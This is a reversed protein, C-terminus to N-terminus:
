HQNILKGSQITKGNAIVKYFYIGSSLNATELTTLQKTVTTRAVMEGLINYVVLDYSNGQMADNLMVNISTTFPNPYISLVNTSNMVDISTPIVSLSVDVSTVIPNCIGTIVVNYNLAADTLAVPNLTLTASTAGSVNGGDALEETGKRWQYTLDTGTAVVTFSAIEGENEIQNAPQETIEPAANVVLYANSSTVAPACAGSVVVNYNSAVDDMSIPDITLTSTTVGSINDANALEVDGIRWQYTLNTGTAVVSYMVLSGSCETQNVPQETIEPGVNVILYVDESTVSPACTGSVVVNYNLAADTIAVPNITLTATTVGSIFDTNALEVEGIRWQYTLDTGTAVVVFSVLGGSCVTQNSPQETIEPASNVVLYVDNSTVAPVCAGTVVVNYNLAADDATVPNITLTATTVGSIFDTNDLEVEGIRWQYTLDDGTAAVTYNLLGGSCISQSIPQETIEPAVNVALYANTSTVAPPYTGTVIVNYDDAVDDATVPDITLTASTAGSISGTSNLIETGKRWQYTLGVGTAEVTFTVMGGLCVTQNSPQTVIQPPTVTGCGEPMTANIENTTFAGTTTLARGNLEVGISFAVAGVSVITGSFASGASVSIEGTINWFVNKTQAGNVLHVISNTGTSFAGVVKIVFVADENGQADLYLNGTLVTAANLIYTHPTLILENGFQAPYLLEIDNELTNLYDYAIALDAIAAATVEDPAEHITGTVNLADFGATLGVNTGVDGVVYSVGTNTLDGNGTFLAFCAASALAPAAPGTPVPSGCGTPLYARTETVTIAGATSLARGELTCGTGMLIAFNNAVITGKMSTGSSMDVLGEIKWFVNCAQAGNALIVESNTATSFAGEIQFIFIANPDGQADLTLDNTLTAAGGISYIGAYLTAGNGLLPSPSLTPIAEDLELYAADLDAAAAQTVLNGTFYMTGDINGFGPSTANSNSGVNGTLITLFTTGVNKVEGAKTFLVFDSAAGLNPAQAYIFSPLILLAAFMVVNLLRTKM